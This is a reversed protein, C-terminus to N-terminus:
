GKESYVEQIEKILILLEELVEKDEDTSTDAEIEIKVKM